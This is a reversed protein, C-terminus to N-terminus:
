LKHKKMSSYMDMKAYLDWLRQLNCYQINKYNINNKILSYDIDDLKILMKGINKGTFLGNLATPISDFGYNMTYQCKIKNDNIWQIMDKQFKNMERFETVLFGEMCINKTILQMMINDMKDINSLKNYQSIQGCVSIRSKNNLVSWVANSQFGGVNDFYVDIGKPFAKFLAKRFVKKNNNYDKYNLAVDFGLTDRLYKCKKNSGATGVVYCNYVNKAIQGVLSGTAGAAGSIFVNDGPKVRGINILGYYATAGIHGIENLYKYLTELTDNNNVNFPLKEVFFDKTKIYTEWPMSGVVLDGIILKNSKSKIVQGISLATLANNITNLTSQGIRVRHSPDVSTVLVKIIVEHASLIPMDKNIIKFHKPTIEGNPIENLTLKLVSM